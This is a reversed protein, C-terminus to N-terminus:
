RLRTRGAPPPAVAQLASSAAAMSTSAGLRAFLGYAQRFAAPAEPQGAIALCRGLGFRAEAEELPVELAQWREAARAFHVAAVGPEDAHEALLAAVTASTHPLVDLAAPKAAVVDGVLQPAAQLTTRLVLPWWAILAPEDGVAAPRRAFRELARAAADADGAAHRVVATAM